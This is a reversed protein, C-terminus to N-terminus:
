KKSTDVRSAAAYLIAIGVMGLSLVFLSVFAHMGLIAAEPYSFGLAHFFSALLSGLGNESSVSTAFVSLCVFAWSVFFVSQLGILVRPLRSDGTLWNAILIGAPVLLFLGLPHQFVLQTSSETTFLLPVGILFAVAILNSIQKFIM